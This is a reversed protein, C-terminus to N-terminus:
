VLLRLIVLIIITPITFSSPTQYDQLHPSHGPSRGGVWEVGTSEPPYLVKLPLGPFINVMITKEKHFSIIKNTKQNGKKLVGIPFTIKVQTKRRWGKGPFICKFGDLKVM